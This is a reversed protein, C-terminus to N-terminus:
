IRFIFVYSTFAQFRGNIIYFEIIQNVNISLETVSLYVLSLYAVSLAIIVNISLIQVLLLVLLYYTFPLEFVLEM